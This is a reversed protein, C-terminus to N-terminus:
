RIVIRAITSGDVATAGFALLVSGGQTLMQAGEMRAIRRDQRITREVSVLLQLQLPLTAYLGLEEQLFSGLAPAYELARLPLNVYHILAQRLNALGALTLTDGRTADYVLQGHELVLDRGFLKEEQGVQHGTIASVDQLGTRIRLPELTSPQPVSLMDGVVKQRLTAPVPGLLVYRSGPSPPLTWAPTLHYTTADNDSVQRRQGAATGETILMILGRQSGPVLSLSGNTVTHLTAETVLGTRVIPNLASQIAYDSTDNPVVTWAQEITLTTASQGVIRRTQGAGPGALIQVVQGLYRGVTWAQVADTLTWASASSVRGRVLVSPGELIYPYTLRNVLALTQWDVGVRAAIGQLTDGPTIRTERLHQDGRLQPRTVGPPLLAALAADQAELQDAFYDPFALLHTCAEEMGRLLALAKNPYASGQQEVGGNATGLGLTGSADAVALATDVPAMVRVSAANSGKTGCSLLYQGQEAHYRATFDRYAAINAVYQPVCQRTQGQITEAIAPGTTLAPLLLTQPAEDNLSLTLRDNVGPVIEQGALLHGLSRPDAAEILLAALEKSAAALTSVSHKPADLVHAATRQAYVPFRIKEALGGLFHGLADGLKTSEQLFTSIPGTVQQTVMQSFADELTNVGNTLDRVVQTIQRLTRQLGTTPTTYQELFLDPLVVETLPRLGVFQLTYTYLFPKSADQQLDVLNRHPHIIWGARGVRDELSTAAALNLFELQLDQTAVVSRTDPLTSPAFYAQITDQLDKFAAAGDIVTNQPPPSIGFQVSQAFNTTLTTAVQAFVDPTVPQTLRDVLPRAATSRIGWYGTHGSITFLTLGVGGEQPTDAVPGGQTYYVATRAETTQSFRQPMLVLAHEKLIAQDSVRRIRFILTYRGSVASGNPFGAMAATQMTRPVLTAPLPM